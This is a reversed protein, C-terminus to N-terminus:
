LSRLLSLTRTFLGPSSGKFRFPPPTSRTSRPPFVSGLQAVEACPQSGEITQFSFFFLPPMPKGRALLLFIHGEASRRASGYSFSLRRKRWLFLFVLSVIRRQPATFSPLGNGRPLEPDPSPQSSSSIGALGERFFPSLPFHLAIIPDRRETLLRSFLAMRRDWLNWPVPRLKEQIRFFSSGRRQDGLADFSRLSLSAPPHAQAAFFRRRRWSHKAESSPFFFFGADAGASRLLPRSRSRRSFSALKKDASIFIFSFQHPPFSISFFKRRTSRPPSRSRARRLSSSRAIRLGKPRFFLLLLGGRSPLFFLGRL